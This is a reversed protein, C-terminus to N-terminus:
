KNVKVISHRLVRDKLMYGKKFEELVTGSETGEECVQLAADHFAPDFPKGVADIPTIGLKSFADAFQKCVLRVGESISSDDDKAANVALELSDYAPILELVANRVGEELSEARISSNRRRFNDFDAQVRQALNKMEDREATIGEIRAKMEDFQAQTLVYTNGNSDAEGQSVEGGTNPIDEGPSQEGNIPNQNPEQNKSGEKNISM